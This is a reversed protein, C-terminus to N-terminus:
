IIGLNRLRRNEWPARDGINPSIGTPVVGGGTVSWTITFGKWDSVVGPVKWPTKVDTASNLLTVTSDVKLDWRTGSLSITAASITPSASDGTYVIFNDTGTALPNFTTLIYTGNYLGSLSSSVTLSNVAPWPNFPDNWPTTSIYDLSMINNNILIQLKKRQLTWVISM